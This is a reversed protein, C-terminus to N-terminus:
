RAVYYNLVLDEGGTLIKTNEEVSNWENVNFTLIGESYTLYQNSDLEEQSKCEILTVGKYKVTIYEEKGDATNFYLVKEPKVVIKGEETSSPKETMGGALNTFIQTLTVSDNATYVKKESSISELIKYGTSNKDSIDEGFGISYITAGADKIQQASTDISDKNNNNYSTTPDGDGLFIVYNSNNPYTKAIGNAGYITNYAKDLAARIHTGLGSTQTGIDINGIETVLENYNSVTATTYENNSGFTLVRTGVYKSDYWNYNEQNFTIVTITAKSDPDSENKKAYVTNVFKQAAEKAADLRTTNKWQGWVGSYRDQRCGEPCYERGYKTTRTHTCEVFESKIVENMSSSLDMVLVINAADKGTQGPTLEHTLAQIEAVKTEVTSKGSASGGLEATNSITKGISNPKIRATFKLEVDNGKELEAINWEIETKADNLKGGSTISDAIVDLESPLNDTVKINRANVLKRNESVTITYDLTDGVNAVKSSVDKNISVEPTGYYVNIFNAGTGIVLIAEETKNSSTIDYQTYKGEESKDRYSNVKEGFKAQFPGEQKEEDEVGNYFYHITYTYTARVYYLRLVLQGDGTVTGETKTGVVTSDFTFGPYEKPEATVKTDTTAAYDKGEELTFGEGNLNELYHEVRYKTDNRAEFSGKIVVDEAPMTFDKHDWGSFKYGPATADEAVTVSAGYKYTKETPLASAGNPTTGEYKYTVKYSNRTYYLKLVLQGDGTVTGETKTGVVTSDFTFGPYEKSEATVKTDTTAAYDKGEELTFGEGNLNELYHEVRYKTDNRAEFSGKIVVDEAPMTFDKHDWGSFKYGPATADEAVTVSAGYKYTKETPLASAGNPTTGEYKYTVKYSNRTYYLKIVLNNNTPVKAGKNETKDDDFTFGTYDNATYSTETGALVEGSTETDKLEFNEDLGQIYHEITYHYKVVTEPRDPIENNDIQAVNTIESVGGEVIVELTLTIAKGNAPVTVNSWTMTNTTADYGDITPDKIRTGAPIEDTVTVTGAANGSNTLTITYTLTDGVKAEPTNVEKKGTINAVLTTVQPTNEGDVVATNTVEKVAEGTSTTADITVKFSVSVEDKAPVVVNWTITGNSEVGDGTISGAVLSTGEPIEDTVTVTGAANGSNTLTITYILTDGVKAETKNAEKKGTINAVPTIVPPTEKEGVVAANTVEKVVEGAATEKNIIVDFSVTTEGNAKVNVDNWTIIRGELKGGESITRDVIETGDPITDTVTTKGPVNSNNTITIVYRLTDGVKASTAEALEGDVILYAEKATTVVPTETTPTDEGNVKATNSILTIETESIVKVKFTLEVTEGAKIINKWTIKGNALVGGESIEVIETGEPIADVTRITSTALNGTNKIRIVYTIEQGPQAVTNVPEASIEQNGVYATKSVELNPTNINLGTTETKAQLSIPMWTIDETKWPNEVVTTQTYETDPVTTGANGTTTGTTTGQNTTTGPNTTTDGNQAPTTPNQNDDIIPIQEPNDTNPTNPNEVGGNNNSDNGNNAPETVETNEMAAAANNNGKIYAVTGTIAAILLVVAIAIIIITKKSKYNIRAKM